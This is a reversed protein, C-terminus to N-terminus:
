IKTLIRPQVITGDPLVIAYIAGKGKSRRFGILWHRTPKVMFEIREAQLFLDDYFRIAWAIAKQTAQEQNITAPIESVDAEFLYDKDEHEVRLLEAAEASISSMLLLLLIRLM